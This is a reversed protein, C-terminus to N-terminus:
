GAVVVGRRRDRRQCSLARSAARSSVYRARARDFWPDQEGHLVHRLPPACGSPSSQHRRHVSSGGRDDTCSGSVRRFNSQLLRDRRDAASTAHQGPVIFTTRDQPRAPLAIRWGHPLARAKVRRRAGRTRIPFELLRSEKSRSSWRPAFRGPRARGACASHAPLRADAPRRPCPASSSTSRASLLPNRHLTCGPMRGASTPCGTAMLAPRRRATQSSTRSSIPPPTLRRRADRHVGAFRRRIPLHRAYGGAARARRASRLGRRARRSTTPRHPSSSRAPSRARRAGAALPRVCEEINGGRQPLSSM